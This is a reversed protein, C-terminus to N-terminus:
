VLDIGEFLKAVSGLLMIKGTDSVIFKFGHEGDEKNPVVVLYETARLSKDEQAQITVNNIKLTRIGECM